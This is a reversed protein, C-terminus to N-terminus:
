LATGYLAAYFLLATILPVPCRRCHWATYMLTTHHMHPTRSLATEEVSDPQLHFSIFITSGCLFDGSEPVRGPPECKPQIRILWIGPHLILPIQNPIKTQCDEQM